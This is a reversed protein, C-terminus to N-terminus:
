RINKRPEISEIPSGLPQAKVYRDGKTEFEILLRLIRVYPLSKSNKCYPKFEFLQGYCSNIYQLNVKVKSIKNWHFGIIDILRKM